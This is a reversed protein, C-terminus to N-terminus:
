GGEVFASGGGGPADESFAGAGAGLDEVFGAGVVVPVAPGGGSSSTPVPLGAPAIKALGGEGLFFTFDFPGDADTLTVDFKYAGTGGRPTTVAVEVREIREDEEGEAVMQSRLRAIDRPTVDDNLYDTIDIGYDPDDILMGRPTTIRRVYAEALTRRGSAVSCRSDMDHVCSLDEGHDAAM